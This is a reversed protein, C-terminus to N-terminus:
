AAEAWPYFGHLPRERSPTSHGSLHLTWRVHCHGNFVHLLAEVWSVAGFYRPRLSQTKSVRIVRCVSENLGYKQVGYSCFTIVLLWLRLKCHLITFKLHPSHLVDPDVLAGIKKRYWDMLGGVVQQPTKLVCCCTGRAAARIGFCDFTCHNRGPSIWVNNKEPLASRMQIKRKRRLVRSLLNLIRATSLRALIARYYKGVCPSILPAMDMPFGCLKGDLGVVDEDCASERYSRLGTVCNELAM